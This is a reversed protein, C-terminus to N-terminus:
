MPCILHPHTGPVSSLAFAWSRAVLDAACGVVSRWSAVYTLGAVWFRAAPRKTVSEWTEGCCVGCASVSAGSVRYPGALRRVGYEM